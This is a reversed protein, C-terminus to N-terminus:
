AKAQKEQDPRLKFGCALAQVRHAKEMRKEMAEPRCISRRASPLLRQIAAIRGASQIQAAFSNLTAM